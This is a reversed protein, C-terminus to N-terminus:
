EIHSTKKEIRFKEKTETLEELLEQNLDKVESLETQLEDNQTELNM